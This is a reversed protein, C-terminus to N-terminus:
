TELFKLIDKTQNQLDGHATVFFGRLMDRLSEISTVDTAQGLCKQREENSLASLFERM